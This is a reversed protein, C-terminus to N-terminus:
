NRRRDTIIRATYKDTNAWIANKVCKKKYRKRQLNDCELHTIRKKKM